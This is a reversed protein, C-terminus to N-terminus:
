AKVNVITGDANVVRTLLQRVDHTSYTRRGLPDRTQVVNGFADYLTFFDAATLETTAPLRTSLRRGLDDVAYTTTIGRGNTTSVVYGHQNYNTIEVIPWEDTISTARTVQGANNYAYFVESMIPTSTSDDLPSSVNGANTQWSRQWTSTVLGTPHRGFYTARLNSEVIKRLVHESAGSEYVYVTQRTGDGPLTEKLLRNVLLHGSGNTAPDYQYKTILDRMVGDDLVQITALVPNGNGDYGTVKKLDVQWVNDFPDNQPGPATSTDYSYTETINGANTHSELRQETENWKNTERSRDPYQVQLLNGKETSYTYTTGNLREDFATTRNRYLDFHFRQVHGDPDTAQFARGNAYYTHTTKKGDPHTIESLKAYLPHNLNTFDYYSYNVAVGANAGNVEAPPSEVRTLIAENNIIALVQYKWVRGGTEPDESVSALRGNADYRFNLRKSVATSGAEVYGPAVPISEVALLRGGAYTLQLRNGYMDLIADLTGDANFRHATGSRDRFIYKQIAADYIFEGKLEAAVVWTAGVGDLLFRHGKSDIWEM